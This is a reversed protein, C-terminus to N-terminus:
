IARHQYGNLILGMNTHVKKECHSVNDGGLINVKGGSDGQIDAARTKVTHYPILYLSLKVKGKTYIGASPWIPCPCCTCDYFAM